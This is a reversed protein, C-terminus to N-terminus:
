QFVAGHRFANQNQAQSRHTSQNSPKCNRVAPSKTGWKPLGEAESPFYEAKPTFLRGARNKNWGLHMFVKDYDQIPGSSYHSSDEQKVPKPNQPAASSYRNKHRLSVSGPAVGYPESDVITNVSGCNRASTKKCGAGNTEAYGAGSEGKQM